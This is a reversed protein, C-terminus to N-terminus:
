IGQDMRPYAAPPQTQVSNQVNRPQQAPPQFPILFTPYTGPSQPLLLCPAWSGRPGGFDNQEVVHVLWMTNSQASHQPYRPVDLLRYSGSRFDIEFAKVRFNVGMCRGIHEALSTMTVLEAHDKMGLGLDNDLRSFPRTPTALHYEYIDVMADREHKIFHHQDLTAALQDHTATSTLGFVKNAEEFSILFASLYDESPIGVLYFPDGPPRVNLQALVDDRDM